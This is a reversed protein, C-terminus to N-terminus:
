LNFYYQGAATYRYTGRKDNSGYYPNEEVKYPGKNSVTITNTESDYTADVGITLNGSFRFVRIKYSSMMMESSSTITQVSDATTAITYMSFLAAIALFFLKKM